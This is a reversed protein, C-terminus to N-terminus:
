RRQGRHRVQIPFRRGEENRVLDGYLLHDRVRFVFRLARTKMPHRQGVFAVNGVSYGSWRRGGAVSNSPGASRFDPDSGSPRTITRPRRYRVM